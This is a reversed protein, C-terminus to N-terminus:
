WEWFFGQVWQCDIGMEGWGRCGSLHKRDVSKGARSMEYLHLQAIRLRKWKTEKILMVNELDLWTTHSLVECRKKVLYYEMTHISWIQNIWKNITSMWTMEAKQKNHLSTKIRTKKQVFMYKRM